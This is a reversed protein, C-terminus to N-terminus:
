GDRPPPQEQQTSHKESVKLSSQRPGVAEEEPVTGNAVKAHEEEYTAVLRARKSTKGGVGGKTSRTSSQPTSMRSSSQPTSKASPSKSSFSDEKLLQQQLPAAEPPTVAAAAPTNGAPAAPAPSATAMLNAAITNGRKLEREALFQAQKLSIVNM